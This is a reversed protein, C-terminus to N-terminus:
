QTSAQVMTAFSQRRSIPPQIKKQGMSSILDNPGMKNPPLGNGIIWWSPTRASKRPGVHPLRPSIESVSQEGQWSFDLSSRSSPDSNRGMGATFSAVRSAVSRLISPESKSLQSAIGHLQEVIQGFEPRDDPEQSWCQQILEGVAGPCSQSITPRWGQVLAQQGDSITFGTRKLYNSFSTRQFLQFVVMGFSFVDAKETYVGSSVVEPAMHLFTGCVERSAPRATSGGPTDRDDAQSDIRRNVALALGFDILKVEAKKWNYATLMVNNISIDRHLYGTDTKGKHMYHLASALQAMWQAAQTNSYLKKSAPVGEQRELLSALSPGNLTELVMLTANGDPKLVALLEV